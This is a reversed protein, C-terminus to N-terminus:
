LFASLLQTRALLNSVSSAHWYGRRVSRIGRGARLIAVLANGIAGLGGQELVIQKRKM